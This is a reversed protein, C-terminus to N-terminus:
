FVKQEARRVCLQNRRIVLIDLIVKVGSKHRDCAEGKHDPSM